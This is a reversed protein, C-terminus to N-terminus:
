SMPPIRGEHGMTGLCYQALQAASAFPTGAPGPLGAAFNSYGLDVYGPVTDDYIKVDFSRVGQLILDDRYVSSPMPFPNTVSGVGGAPVGDAFPQVDVNPDNLPPLFSLTSWSLGTAQQFNQNNPWNLPYVPDIWLPSATERWTPFGWWTQVPTIPNFN